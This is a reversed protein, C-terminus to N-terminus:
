GAQRRAPSRCSIGSSSRPRHEQRDWPVGAITRSNLLKRPLTPPGILPANAIKIPRQGSFRFGPFTSNSFAPNSTQVPVRTSFSSRLRRVPYGTLDWFLPHLHKPLQLTAIADLPGLIAGLHTARRQNSESLISGTELSLLTPAIFPDNQTSNKRKECSGLKRM